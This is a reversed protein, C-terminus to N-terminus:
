AKPGRFTELLELFGKESGEIVALGSAMLEDLVGSPIVVLGDEDGVVVDGPHVTAGGCTIPGDLDVIEYRDDHRSFSAGSAYCDFGMQRTSSIDRVCGDVVAGAIGSALGQASTSEGWFGYQAGRAEIVVVDGAVLEGRQTLDHMRTIFLEETPPAKDPSPVELYQVPAYRVTYATGALHEGGDEFTRNNRLGRIECNIVGARRLYDGIWATPTSRLRALVDASPRQRERAPERHRLTM